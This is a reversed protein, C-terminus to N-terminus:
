KAFSASLDVRDGLVNLDGDQKPLAVFLNRTSRTATFVIKWHTYIDLAM